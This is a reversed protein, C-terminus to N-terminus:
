LHVDCERGLGYDDRSTGGLFRPVKERGVMEHLSEPVNSSVTVKSKMRSNLCPSIFHWLTLFMRPVNVLFTHYRGEVYYRASEQVLPVVLNRIMLKADSLSKLGQCDFIQIVGSIVKTQDTKEFVLRDSRENIFRFMEVIKSQDMMRLKEVNTLGIRYIGVPYGLSTEFALPKLPMVKTIERLHPFSDVPVEIAKKQIDAIERSDRWKVFDALLEAVKDVQFNNGLLYRVIRQDDLKKNLGGLGSRRLRERVKLVLGDRQIRQYGKPLWEDSQGYKDNIVWCFGQPRTISPTSTIASKRTDSSPCGNSGAGANINIREAEKANLCVEASGETHHEKQLREEACCEVPNQSEKDPSDDFLSSVLPSSRASTDQQSLAVSPDSKPSLPGVPAEFLKRAVLPTHDARVHGHDMSGPYGDAGLDQWLVSPTVIEQGPPM